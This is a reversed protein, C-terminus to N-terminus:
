PAVRSVAASPTIIPIGRFEGIEILHADGSVIGAAVGAVATALVVDDDPDALLLPPNPTPPRDAPM